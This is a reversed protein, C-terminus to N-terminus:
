ECIGQASSPIADGLRYAGLVPRKGPVDNGMYSGKQAGYIPEGFMSGAKVMVPLSTSGNMASLFGSHEMLATRTKRGINAKDYEVTM